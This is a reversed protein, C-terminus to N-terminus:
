KQNTELEGRAIKAKAQPEKIFSVWSLGGNELVYYNKTSLATKLIATLQGWVKGCCNKGCILLM